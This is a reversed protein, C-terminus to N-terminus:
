VSMMIKAKIGVQNLLYLLGGGDILEIPKDKSFEFADPGYSSTSVLIGKSAGENIMTGYLDRVASVGVTNKYRKAQIVIKGGLIPRVDFAIADVGGDKSSRTQKTELGMKTFLNSVLNEFEFPDLDMLNPRNDLTSVIDEEQVFRKDVMAFERIPKVAVLEHPSSSVSASLGQICRVPEIKSLNISEFGSKLVSVSIVTPIVTKGNSPDISQVYGNFCISAIANAQDSEVIEHITRIAINSILTKYCIELESKKRPKEEIEDKSKVYKYEGVAPIIDFNPLRFEILLEKSDPSYAIKFERTWDINYDSRELVMGVYSIVAEQDLALYETRFDEIDQCKNNYETQYKEKQKDFELKLRETDEKQKTVKDQWGRLDSQFLVKANEIKLLWKQNISSFLSSLLPKKGVASVYTEEKPEIPYNQLEQPITFIPPDFKPKLSDFSITDDIELTEPIIGSKLYQFLSNSDKTLDEAEELRMELYEQKARKTAEKEILSMQRALAKAQRQQAAIQRRHAAEAQRAARASARAAAIVISSFSSRRAM